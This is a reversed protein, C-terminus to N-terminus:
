ALPRTHQEGTFILSVRDQGRGAGDDQGGDGTTKGCVGWIADGKVHGFRRERWRIQGQPDAQGINLRATPARPPQSQSTLQGTPPPPTLTPSLPQAPAGRGRDSAKLGLSSPPPKTGAPRSTADAAREQTNKTEQTEQEPQKSAKSLDIQMAANDDLQRATHHLYPAKPGRPCASHRTLDPTRIGSRCHETPM